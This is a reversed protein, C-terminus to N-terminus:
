LQRTNRCGMKYYNECGLFAGRPGKRPFMRGGCKECKPIESEPKIIGAQNQERPIPQINFPINALIAHINELYPLLHPAKRHPQWITKNKNWGYKGAVSFCIIESDGRLMVGGKFSEGKINVLAKLAELLATYEAVNNTSNEGIIKGTSAITKGREKILWGYSGIKKESECAGDFFIEIQFDSLAAQPQVNPKSQEAKNTSLPAAPRAARKAGKRELREREVDLQKKLWDDAEQQSPFKKFRAGPTGHTKAKCATWTTVVASEQTSPLYYAYFYFKQKKGM